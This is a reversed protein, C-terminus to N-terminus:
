KLKIGLEKAVKKIPHVKGQKIEKLAKKIEREFEKKYKQKM